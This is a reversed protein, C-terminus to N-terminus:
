PAPTPVGSSTTSPGATRRPQGSRSRPSGATTAAKKKASEDAVVDLMAAIQRRAAVEIDRLASPPLTDAWGIALAEIDDIRELVERGDHTLIYLSPLTELVPVIAGSIMPSEIRELLAYAGLTLPRVVVGCSTCIPAPLIAAISKAPNASSM